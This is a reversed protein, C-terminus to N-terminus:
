QAGDELFQPPRCRVQRPVVVPQRLLMLHLEETAADQSLVGESGM